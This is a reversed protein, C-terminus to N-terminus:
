TFKKVVELMQINFHAEMDKQKKVERQSKNGSAWYEPKSGISDGAALKLKASKELHTQKFIATWTPEIGNEKKTHTSISGSVSSKWNNKATESNDKWSNTNWINGCVLSEM